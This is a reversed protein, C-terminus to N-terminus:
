GGLLGRLVAVPGRRTRGSFADRLRREDAPGLKTGKRTTVWFLDAALGGRTSINAQHIDVGATSLASSVRHLLGSRDHAAVEVVTYWPSAMNDITVVGEVHQVRHWQRGDAHSLDAEISRRVGEWDTGYPAHVDFVDVALGNRWTSVNAQVVSIRKRAFAGAISALAGPRDLMAVHVMWREHGSSQEAELRTEFRTPKPEVMDLHRAITSTAQEILYPHPAAWLHERVIRESLHPLARVLEACHREAREVASRDAFTEGM